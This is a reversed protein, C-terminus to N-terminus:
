ETAQEAEEEMQHLLKLWTVYEETWGQKWALKVARGGQKALIRRQEDPFLQQLITAAYRMLAQGEKLRKLKVDFEILDLLMTVYIGTFRKGRSMEECIDRLALYARRPDGLKCYIPYAYIDLHTTDLGNELFWSRDERYAQLAEEYRKENMLKTLSIIRVEMEAEAQTMGSHRYYHAEAPPEPVPAGLLRAKEQRAGAEAKRGLHELAAACLDLAEGAAYSAYTDKESRAGAWHLLAEAQELEQQFRGLIGLIGCACVGATTKAPIDETHRFLGLAYGLIQENMKNSRGFDFQAKAIFGRTFDALVGADPKLERWGTEQVLPHMTLIDDGSRRVWGRDILRLLTDQDFDPVRAFDEAGLGEPPIPLAYCLLRKEEAPLDSLRFLATLHGQIRAMRGERDKPSSVSALAKSDLDGQTLKELLVEPSLRPISTKLTRGMLEVTLTHGEVAAILADAMGDSLDPAGRRLLQRLLPLPLADVEVGGEVPSRTTVLLGMPLACLERFAPEGRLVDFGGEEGDMNDLILLDNESREGLLKMVERYIQEEPKERGYIDRRDYGSFGDAIPGIVTKRVSNRFRVFYAQGRTYRHPHAFKLALETKGMGAFGWVVVPKRGQRLCRDIEALKEERPLFEEETLASLFLALQNKPPRTVSVLRGADALMEGATQYRGDPDPCLSRNLLCQLLRLSEATCGLREGESPLLCALTTGEALMRDRGNEFYTRGRLLFLLLRGASYLDAAPTLRLTGDNGWAIEPATYGPTSFVMRDTIPATEKGDDARDRLARACGFDLLCAFGIAGKEPQADAFFINEPQVDGYLYGANHVLEVARLVQELILATTHLGPQGGTRLPRGEEPPLACEELLQPLFLGVRSLDRLVLFSGAPASAPGSATEVTFDGPAEWVPITKASVAAVDQSIEAERRMRERAQALAYDAPRSAGALVGAARHLQGALAGPCCEKIGFPLSSGEKKATYFLSSGGFGTVEGLIYRDSGRRLVTGAPLALSITRENM